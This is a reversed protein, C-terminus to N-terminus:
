NTDRRVSLAKFAKKGANDHLGDIWIYKKIDKRKGEWTAVSSVDVLWTEQMWSREVEVDFVSVAGVLLVWEILRQMKDDHSVDIAQCCHRLQDALRPYATRTGPLQLTTTLLALMALRICESTLGQLSGELQILRYHLSFIETQFDVESQHPKTASKDNLASAFVQVDYFVPWILPDLM